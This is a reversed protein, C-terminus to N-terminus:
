AGTKKDDVPDTVAFITGVDIDYFCLVWASSHIHDNAFLYRYKFVKPHIEVIPTTQIFDPAPDRPQLNAKIEVDKPLPFGKHHFYLGRIMHEIFGKRHNPDIQVGPRSELQIGSETRFLVKPRLEAVMKARLKPSNQLSRRGKTEFLVSATFNNKGSLGTLLNRFYEIAKVWRGNCAKHAPVKIIGQRQGDPFFSRPPIEEITDAGADGCFYCLNEM